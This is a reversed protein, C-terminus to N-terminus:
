RTVVLQEKSIRHKPKLAYDDAQSRIGVPCLIAANLNLANLGLIQNIKHPEFGTMPCADIRHNAAFTLLTGLAIYCQQQMWQQKQLDSKALLDNEIQAQYGVLDSPLRQQTHALDAIFNAIDDQNLTNQHAFILLHACQAVKEQGYSASICAHKLAPDNVVILRYPQLGYASPSLQVSQILGDLQTPSLSQESFQKVAYRWKLDQILSM